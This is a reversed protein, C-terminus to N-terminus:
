AYQALVLGEGLSAARKSNPTIQRRHVQVGSQGHPPGIFSGFGFWTADGASAWVDGPLGIWRQLAARLRSTTKRSSRSSDISATARLDPDLGAAQLLPALAGQGGQLRRQLSRGSSLGSCAPRPAAYLRRPSSPMSFSM